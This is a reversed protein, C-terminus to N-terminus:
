ICLFFGAVKNDAPNKEDFNEPVDVKNQLSELQKLSKMDLM